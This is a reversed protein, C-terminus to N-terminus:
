HSLSQLLFKPTITGKVWLTCNAHLSELVKHGEARSILTKHWNYHPKPGLIFLHGKLVASNFHLVHVLCGRAIVSFFMTWCITFTGDNIQLWPLHTKKVVSSQNRHTKQHNSNEIDMEKAVATASRCHSEKPVLGLFIRIDWLSNMLNQVHM